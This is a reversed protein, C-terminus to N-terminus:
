GTLFGALPFGAWQWKGHFAVKWPLLLSLFSCCVQTRPQLFPILLPSLFVEWSKCPLISRSDVSIALGEQLQPCQPLHSYLAAQGCFVPSPMWIRHRVESSLALLFQMELMGSWCIQFSCLLGLLTCPGCMVTPLTLCIWCPPATALSPICCGCVNPLHLM